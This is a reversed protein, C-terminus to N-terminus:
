NCNESGDDTMAATHTDTHFQSAVGIVLTSHTCCSQILSHSPRLTAVLLQGM